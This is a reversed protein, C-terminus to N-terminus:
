AGAEGNEPLNEEIRRENKGDEHRCVPRYPCYDCPSGGGGVLPVADFQGCRVGKAMGRLMEEVHGQLAEFDEEALLSRSKKAEGDKGLKVPAFRGEGTHDLARLIQADNLVLGDLTYVMEYVQGRQGTKPAPDSSLYLIAAPRAKPDNRCVADMYILMQMNIGCMVEDLSFKKDGTKYDLVVLYDRGNKTLVDLRDIKGNVQMPGYETKLRLPPVGERDSIPLELAEIRFDSQAAADRLFCLLGCSAEVMNALIRRTRLPSGALNEEVFVGAHRGAMERLDEDTCHAFDEKAERLVQELVYHVFTGSEVPSFDARKLPKVRLLQELYFYFGCQYYREVRTASLSLVQGSLQTILAENELGFGGDNDVKELLELKGAQSSHGLAAYLSAATESNERYLGGLLAFAAKPTAALKEVPMDLGQCVNPALLPAVAASPQAAAGKFRKPWSLYLGTDPAALAKYLYMQELLVRNQFGGPMQIDHAVLKERDAHTLLGSYGVPKPFVGECLGLVFCHAPAALRMRDAGTFVVCDITQPAQGFDTSRVLLLFLEGVDSAPLTEGRLLLALKDLLNMALDWARRLWQARVFNGAEELAAAAAETTQAAGFGDLLLYVERLMKAAPLKAARQRFVELAPCLAHRAAEAMELRSQAQGDFPQLLGDPNNEFPARLQAAGPRWTYIYNEFAAQEAEGLGCLGSKVLDLVAQGNLGNQLLVFAAKVFLVPPSYEITDPMDLFYPIDYLSFARHVASYYDPIERCVVAIKHLPVGQRALHHIQAAAWLAEEWEDAANTCFVGAMGKAPAEFSGRTFFREVAGLGPGIGRRQGACYLPAARKVGAKDAMQGLRRATERVPSFLGLGEEDEALADCCLAAQVLPSYAMLAQLLRYEPATFGDFDDIFCARQRLFEPTLLEAALALRDQPDQANKEIVAQYAGYVLALDSFKADQEAAGIAALTEPAAGATKLESITQAFLNCYAADRRHGSFAALRGELADLARRVFVVRDAEDIVHFAQGGSAKLIRESLTRFSLVEVFASKQEGLAKFVLTEASSSFQEPVLFLSLQRRDARRQMENLMYTTKGSGAVGLVLQLM